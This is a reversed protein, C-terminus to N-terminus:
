DLRRYRRRTATEDCTHFLTGSVRTSTSKVVPVAEREYENDLLVTATPLLATM